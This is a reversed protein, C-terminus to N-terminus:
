SQAPRSRYFGVAVAALAVILLVSGVLAIAQPLVGRSVTQLIVGLPFGFSGVVLMWALSYRVRERFAVQDFIVGFILLLLALGSWHSHVDVERVYEFKWAEYRDLAAHAESRNNNAAASFGEALSLTITELTQHEDFLAYYLGYVMGWIVLLLGGVLLLKRSGSV